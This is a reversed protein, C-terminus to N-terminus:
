GHDAHPHLGLIPPHLFTTRARVISGRPSSKEDGGRAVELIVGRLVSLSEERPQLVQDRRALGSRPSM